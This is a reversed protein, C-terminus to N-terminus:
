YPRRATLIPSEEGRQHRLLLSWSWCQKNMSPINYLSLLSNQWIARTAKLLYCLYDASLTRLSTVSSGRHFHWLLLFTSHHLSSRIISRLVSETGRLSCSLSPRVIGVVLFVGSAFIYWKITPVSAIILLTMLWLSWLCSENLQLWWIRENWKRGCAKGFPQLLFANQGM